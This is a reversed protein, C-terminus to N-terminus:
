QLSYAGSLYPSTRSKKYITLHNELDDLSKCIINSAISNIYTVM